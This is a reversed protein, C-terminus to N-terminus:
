LRNQGSKKAAPAGDNTNNARAKQPSAQLADLILNVEPQEEHMTDLFQRFRAGLTPHAMWDDQIRKPLVLGEPTNHQGDPGFVLM